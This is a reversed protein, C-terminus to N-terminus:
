EPDIMQLLVEDLKAPLWCVLMAMCCHAPTGGEAGRIESMQKMVETSIHYYRQSNKDDSGLM